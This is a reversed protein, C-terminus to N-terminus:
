LCLYNRKGGGETTKSCHVSLRSGGKMEGMRADMLISIAVCASCNVETMEFVHPLEAM